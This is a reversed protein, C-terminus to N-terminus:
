RAAALVDLMSGHVRGNSAVIRSGDAPVPGVDRDSARGGAEDVM